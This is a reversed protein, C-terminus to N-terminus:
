ENWVEMETVGSRAKGKNTFLVRVKQTTIKSFKVTNVTGGAPEAPSAVQAMADHWVDNAWYQVNYRAPPQVGGRDDALKSFHFLAFQGVADGLRKESSADSTGTTM